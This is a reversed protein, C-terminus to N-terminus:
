SAKKLEAMKETLLWLAKNLKIDKDISNVARTHVRKTHGYKDKTYGRLGGKIINEQIVNFTSWLDKGKDDYRREELLQIPQIPSKKDKDDTNYILSHATIAFVGREDPTLEIAKLSDVENAIMNAENAIKNASEVFLDPNFNIHKHSFNLINNAVMLGNGCVKRWVSASLHFACGRDHSNHLVIDIREQNSIELDSRMFRIMHKQYGDKEEKRTNAQKAQVPIWNLERLIDIAKTTPVFDYKESVESYASTAGISPALKILQENTLPYLNKKNLRLSSLSITM